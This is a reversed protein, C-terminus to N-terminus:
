TGGIGHQYLSNIKSKGYLGKKTYSLKSKKLVMRVIMTARKRKKKMIM